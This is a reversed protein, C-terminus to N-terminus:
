AANRLLEPDVKLAGDTLVQIQYQYPAPVVRGWCSITPQALGLAQALKAQTGGFYAIAQDYTMPRIIIRGCQFTM